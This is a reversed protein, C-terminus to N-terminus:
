GIFNKQGLIQKHLSHGRSKTSILVILAEFQLIYILCLFPGCLDM